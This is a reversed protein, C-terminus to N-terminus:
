LPKLKKLEEDFTRKVADERAEAQLENSMGPYVPNAKAWFLCIRDLGDAGLM